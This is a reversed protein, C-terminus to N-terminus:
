PKISLLMSGTIHGTDVFIVRGARALTAAVLEFCFWASDDQWQRDVAIFLGVAGAWDYKARAKAQARAWALGAEADPVMYDVTEVVELGQMVEAVPARRVGHLMNAEIAYEGDVIVSHSALAIAFRSRPLAWRILWSIPNWKRKTYLVRITGM